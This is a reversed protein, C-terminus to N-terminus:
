IYLKITSITDTLNSIALEINSMNDTLGKNTDKDSLYIRGDPIKKGFSVRAANVVTVDSGMYDMM